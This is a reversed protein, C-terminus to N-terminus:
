ILTQKSDDAPLDNISAFRKQMLGNEDFQWLENGYSRFWVGKQDQWEYESRVAMRYNRFGWLELKLTGNVEKEWKSKLFPEVEGRGSLFDTRDRWETDATCSLAILERDRSNWKTEMEKVKEMATELTFPLLIKKLEEKKM